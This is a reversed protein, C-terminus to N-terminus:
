FDFQGTFKFLRAGLVNVPQLWRPGYSAGMSLVSNANFLNYV